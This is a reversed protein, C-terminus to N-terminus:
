MPLLVPAFAVNVTLPPVNLWVDSIMRTPCALPDVPINFTPPPAPVATTLTTVSSAAPALLVEALPVTLRSVPPM